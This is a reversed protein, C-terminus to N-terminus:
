NDLELVLTHEGLRCLKTSFIPTPIFPPFEFHQPRCYDSLHQCSLLQFHGTPKTSHGSDVSLDVVCCCCLIVRDKIRPTLTFCTIPALSGVFILIGDANAQWLEATKKDEEEAMELYMSFIPGSGDVLNSM